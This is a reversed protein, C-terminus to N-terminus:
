FNCKRHSGDGWNIDFSYTKGSVLPLTFQDIGSIESMTTDVTFRFDTISTVLESNDSVKYWDNSKAYILTSESLSFATVDM